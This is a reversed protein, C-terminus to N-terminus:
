DILWFHTSFLLYLIALNAAALAAAYRIRKFAIGAAAVVSSCIPVIWMLQVIARLDYFHRWPGHNGYSTQWGLALEVAGFKWALAWLAGLIPVILFLSGLAIFLWGGAPSMKVNETKSGKAFYFLVGSGVYVLVGTLLFVSRVGSFPNSMGFPFVGHYNSDTLGLLSDLFGPSVTDVAVLMGLALWSFLSGYLWPMLLQYHPSCHEGSKGFWKKM